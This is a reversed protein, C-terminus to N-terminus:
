LFQKSTKKSLEREMENILALDKPEPLYCGHKSSFDRFKEIALTMEETNLTATSRWLEINVIGEKTGNYFLDPNVLKKFIEQKVEEMEYGHELGFWSLILHLYRNQSLSRIKRKEKIEFVKNNQILYELREVARNRDLKLHADYIM